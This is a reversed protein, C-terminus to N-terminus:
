AVSLVVECAVCFLMQLLCFMVWVCFLWMAVARTYSVLNEINRSYLSVLWLWIVTFFILHRRWRLQYLESINVREM